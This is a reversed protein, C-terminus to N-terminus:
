MSSAFRLSLGTSTEDHDTWYADAAPVVKWSVLRVPLM